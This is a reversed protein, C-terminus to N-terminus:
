CRLGNHREEDLEQLIWTPVYRLFGMKSLMALRMPRNQHTSYFPGRKNRLFISKQLKGLMVRLRPNERM